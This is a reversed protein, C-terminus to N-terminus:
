RSARRAAVISVLIVAGGIAQQWSSREDLLSWALTAAVVPQLLLSVSSYSAPLHKLAWVILTQGAVQSVLALGFLVAWGKLTPPLMSEGSLLALPLLLLSSIAATWCATIAASAHARVRSLVLFYGAYFWSTVLGLADGALDRGLSLREGALIASGLIAGALAAAFGRTVREGFLIAAGITVFIPALNALLTATAVSTLRISWHWFFLDGAFCFGAM